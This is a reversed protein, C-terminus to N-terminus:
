DKDKVCRITFGNKRFGDGLDDLEETSTEDYEISFVLANGDGDLDSAWWATATGVNQIVEETASRYGTALASFGSANKIGDIHGPSFEVDSENWSSGSALAVTLFDESAFGADLDSDKFESSGFAEDILHSTLEDFDNRTPVHWDTPCVNREDGAVFHTYYRGATPDNPNVWAYRPEIDESVNIKSDSSIGQGNQFKTVKLNEAMWTQDGIEVISYENDDIDKVGNEVVEYQASYVPLDDGLILTEDGDTKCSTLAVAALLVGTKMLNQVKM